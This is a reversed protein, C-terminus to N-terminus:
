RTSNSGLHIQGGHRQWPGGSISWASIRATPRPSALHSLPGSICESTLLLPSSHQKISRPCRSISAHGAVVGLSGKRHEVPLEFAHKGSRVKHLKKESPQSAYWCSLSASLKGFRGELNLKTLLSARLNLRRKSVASPGDVYHGARGATRTYPM